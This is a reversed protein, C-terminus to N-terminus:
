KDNEKEKLTFPQHDTKYIVKFGSNSTKFGVLWLGENIDFKACIKTSYNNSQTM